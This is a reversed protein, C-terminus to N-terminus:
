GHSDELEAEMEQIKADLDELITEAKPKEKETM